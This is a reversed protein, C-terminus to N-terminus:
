ALYSLIVSGVHDYTAAPRLDGLGVVLIFALLLSTVASIILFTLIATILKENM